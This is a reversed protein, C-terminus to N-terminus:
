DQGQVHSPNWNTKNITHKRPNIAAWGGDIPTYIMQLNEGSMVAVMIVEPLLKAAYQIAGTMNPAHGDELGITVSRNGADVVVKTVTAMIEPNWGTM